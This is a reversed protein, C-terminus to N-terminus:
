GKRALEAELAEVCDCAERLLGDKAQKADIDRCITLARELGGAYTRKPAGLSAACGCSTSRGSRLSDGRVTRTTGCACLCRWSANLNSGGPDALEMVKWMGFRRGVMDHRRVTM